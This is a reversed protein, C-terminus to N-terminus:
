TKPSQPKIKRKLIKQKKTPTTAMIPPIDGGLGAIKGGGATNTPLGGEQEMFASFRKLKAQGM